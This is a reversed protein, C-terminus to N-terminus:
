ATQHQGIVCRRGVVARRACESLRSALLDRTHKRIGRRDRNSRLVDDEPREIEKPTRFPTHGSLLPEFGDNTPAASADDKGGKVKSAREGPPGGADPLVRDGRAAVTLALM